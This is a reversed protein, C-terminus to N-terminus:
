QSVRALVLELTSEDPQVPQTCLRRRAQWLQEALDLNAEVADNERSAAVHRSLAQQAKGALGTSQVASDGACRDIDNLILQIVKTTRRYREAADIGRLMPDLALVQNCEDLQRRIEPDRPKLRQGLDLDARAARYNGRAFEAEGLGAHADGDQPNQRLIARFVEAAHTPSGAQLFLQGIRQRTSADASAVDQLPLLEALLRSKANQKVLLDILEFRAKVSNGAADNPWHGYIAMHYYTEAEAPKGERARVRALLLNPEGATADNQLIAALIASADGLRGAALLARALALKYEPNDRSAAVAARLSTVADSAHGAAAQREGEEFLRTAQGETEIHEMRALFTDIAFLAAMSVGILVFTGLISPTAAVSVQPRM